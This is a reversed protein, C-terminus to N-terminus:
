RRVRYVVFAVVLGALALIALHDPQTLFHVLGSGEHDGPHALAPSALATLLFTLRKM